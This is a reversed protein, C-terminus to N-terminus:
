GESEPPAFFVLLALTEEISHFHHRARAPVFLISGAKLPVTKGECEFSARGKVVYYIEDEQHPTQPDDAGAPLLYLGGSFFGARLFERYGQGRAEGESLLTETDFSQM